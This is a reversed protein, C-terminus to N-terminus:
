FKRPRGTKPVRLEARTRIYYDVLEVVPYWIIGEKDRVYPIEQTRRRRYLTAQSIKFRQQVQDERILIPFDSKAAKRAFAKWADALATDMLKIIQDLREKKILRRNKVEKFRSEVQFALEDTQQLLEFLEPLTARIKDM